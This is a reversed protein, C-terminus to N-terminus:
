HTDTTTQKRVIPCFQNLEIKQTLTLMFRANLESAQALREYLKAQREREEEYLKAQRDREEKHDSIM